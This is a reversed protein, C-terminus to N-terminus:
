GGKREKYVELYKNMMSEISLYKEVYDINISKKDNEIMSIARIISKVLDEKSNPDFFIAQETVENIMGKLGEIDSLVLINDSIAAELASLGFGEWLSPLIFIDSANLFVDVDKRNELLTIRDILGKNKIREIIISKLNGNGILILKVNPDRIESFAEILLLQNKVPELRGVSILLIEKKKFGIEEKEIKKDNFYKKVDIGNNIVTFKDKTNSFIWNKLNREVSDTISVVKSYKYYMLSDILRFIKKSRRNNNTSHETTILKKKDIFFSSYLQAYYTHTHIIDFEKSINNLIFPIRFNLFSSMKLNIVKIKNLILNEYPVGKRNLIMLVTVEYGKNKSYVAMDAVLKEAGGNDLHTTIYLIKM